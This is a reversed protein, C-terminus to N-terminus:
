VKYILMKLWTKLWYGARNAGALHLVAAGAEESLYELHWQPATTDRFPVLDAVQVRTTALCLGSNQLALRKLLAEIAPDKLQGALPALPLSQRKTSAVSM